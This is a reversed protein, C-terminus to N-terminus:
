PIHIQYAILEWTENKIPGFAYHRSELKIIGVYPKIWIKESLYDNLCNAKRDILAVELFSLHEMSLDLVASVICTDFRYDPNYWGKGPTYPTLIVQEIRNYKLSFFIVSDDVQYVYSYLTTDPYAYEWVMCSQNSIMTDKIAAVFLTDRKGSLSDYYEYKWNSSLSNPFYNEEPPNEEYEKIECSSFAFLLTSFIVAIRNM